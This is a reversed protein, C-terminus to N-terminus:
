QVITAQGLGFTITWGPPSYMCTAVGSLVSCSYGKLTLSGGDPMVKITPVAAPFKTEITRCGNFAVNDGTAQFAGIQLEYGDLGDSCPTVVSAPKAYTALSEKGKVIECAAVGPTESFLRFDCIVSKSSDTYFAYAASWVDGDGGIAGDILYDAPNAVSPVVPAASPTVTATPTSSTPAVTPAGGAASPTGAPNGCGALALVLPVLLILGIRKM